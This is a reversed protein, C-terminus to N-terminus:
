FPSTELESLLFSTLTEDLRRLRVHSITQRLHLTMKSASQLLVRAAPRKNLRRRRLLVQVGLLRAMRTRLRLLFSFVVHNLGDAKEECDMLGWSVTGVIAKM